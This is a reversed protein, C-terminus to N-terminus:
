AFVFDGAVLTATTGTALLTLEAATIADDAVASAFYYLAYSGDGANFALNREDGVTEHDFSIASNLDALTVLDTITATAAGAAILQTTDNGTGVGDLDLDAGYAVANVADAATGTMEGTLFAGILRIDDGTTAFDTITDGPARSGAVFAGGATIASYTFLDVGTGGTLRDAAAGGVITDIGTGGTITDAGADGNLGTNAASSTSYNIVDNGSGANVSDAATAVGAGATITDDGAGATISDVNVASGIITIGTSFGAANITQAGGLTSDNRITRIGAVQAFGGATISAAVGPAALSLVDIASANVFFSDVAGTQTLTITDSGTGGTITAQSLANGFVFNATGITDILLSNTVLGDVRLTDNGDGGRLTSDTLTSYLVISDNDRAGRVETTTVAGDFTITDNGQGGGLDLRTVAGSGYDADDAGQGLLVDDDTSTIGNAFELTDSGTGGTVSNFTSAGNFIWANNGELSQFATNTVSVGAAVTTTDNGNGGYVESNVLSSNLNISDNGNGGKVTIDRYPNGLTITDNGNLADVITTSAEIRFQDPAVTAVATSITNNNNNAQLLTM